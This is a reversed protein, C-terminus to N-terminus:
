RNYFTLYLYNRLHQRQFKEDLQYVAQTVLVKPKAVAMKFKWNFPEDQTTPSLVMSDPVDLFMPTSVSIMSRHKISVSICWFMNYPTKCLIIYNLFWSKYFQRTAYTVLHTRQRAGNQEDESSDILLYSVASFVVVTENDAMKSVSAQM